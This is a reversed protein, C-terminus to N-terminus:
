PPLAMPTPLPPVTIGLDEAAVALPNFRAPSRALEVCFDRQLDFWRRISDKYFSYYEDSDTNEGDFGEHNTRLTTFGRESRYMNAALVAWFEKLSGMDTNEPVPDSVIKGHAAQMAHVLEHYLMEGAGAGPLVRKFNIEMQRWTAPNYRIISNGGAGSGSVTITLAGIPLDIRLTVTNSPHTGAILDWKDEPDTSSNLVAPRYPVITTRRARKAIFAYLTRGAHTTAILDLYRLVENRYPLYDDIVRVRTCRPYEYYTTM